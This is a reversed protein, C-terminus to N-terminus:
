RVASRALASSAGRVFGRAARVTHPRRERAGTLATVAVGSPARVLTVLAGGDGLRRTVTRMVRGALRGTGPAGASARTPDFPSSGDLNGNVHLFSVAALTTAELLMLGALRSM